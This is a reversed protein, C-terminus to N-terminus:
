LQEARLFAAHRWLLAVYISNCYVVTSIINLNFRMYCLCIFKMTTITCWVQYGGIVLLSHYTPHFVCSHFKNANSNLEHLCEGTNVSWVRVSDQSVSALLDGNADWCVSHVEKSHGQFANIQRDTEVDFISVINDAAAALLQGIRPQFRVQATGGKSVRTCLYQSINWFRIENNGDCSCFLDTKKPHFDLSMVHSSHGTYAHLCYSPEAANWLRVTRDFSCTALHTSNPRFRIDTIILTHEEPTSETQLTDMNWLVAKKEHGASALLKGDSSFHCCVVKSNSTRICGVESFTFGKSETNHDTPSRKITSFLDRGDGDDHSLFSEVNDDLSGVDGFHEMDELQNSSSALGATGDPGYMMLSKQMNNVHQLGSTM